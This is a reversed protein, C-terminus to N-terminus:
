IQGPVVSEFITIESGTTRGPFRGQVVEWLRTGGFGSSSFTNDVEATRDLRCDSFVRSRGMTTATLPSRSPGGAVSQRILNVHTGADIAEDPILVGGSSAACAAIVDTGHCADRPSEARHVSFGLSAAQSAAMDLSVPDDDWLRLGRLALVQRTTLMHYVAQNGCGIIGMTRAESRALYRAAVAGTAAARLALLLSMEAVFIPQRTTGDVLVGLGDAPEVRFGSIGSIRGLRVVPDPLAVLTAPPGDFRDSRQRALDREISSVLEALYRELDGNSLWSVLEADDFIGVTM